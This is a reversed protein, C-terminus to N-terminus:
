GAPAPLIVAAARDDAVVSMLVPDWVGFRPNVRVGLDLALPQAIRRGVAQLVQSGVRGVVSPGAAPLDTRREVIRVVAWQPAAPDGAPLLMVRGTPIGVLFSGARSPTTAARLEAGQQGTQAATAAAFVEDAAPGGAAAIKGQREAEERTGFQAVDYTVGLGDIYKAGLASAILGDRVSERQMGPAALPDSQAGEGAAALARDVDADSVAVGEAAATRALLDHLVVHDVVLRAADANGFEPGGAGVSQSSIANRIAAKEPSLAVAVRDQVPGLPIAESGIIAASGAQGPGGCGSIVAGVVAVAAVVRGVRM